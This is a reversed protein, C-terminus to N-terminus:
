CYPRKVITYRWDLFAGNVRVDRGDVLGKFNNHIHHSIGGVAGLDYMFYVSLPDITWHGGALNGGPRANRKWCCKNSKKGMSCLIQSEGSERLKIVTYPGHLFCKRGQRSIVLDEHDKHAEVISGPGNRIFDTDGNYRGRATGKPRKLNKDKMLFQYFYWFVQPLEKAVVYHLGETLIDFQKNAKWLKPHNLKLYKKLDKRIVKLKDANKLSFVRKRQNIGNKQEEKSSKEEPKYELEKVKKLEHDKFLDALGSKKKESCNNM